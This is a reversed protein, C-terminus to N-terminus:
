VCLCVRATGDHRQVRRRRARFRQHLHQQRLFDFRGGLATRTAAFQKAGIRQVRDAADTRAARDDHALVHAPAVITQEPDHVQPDGSGRLLRQRQLLYAGNNARWGRSHADYM